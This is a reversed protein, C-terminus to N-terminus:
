RTKEDAGRQGDQPKGDRGFMMTLAGLNVHTQCVDQNQGQISIDVISEM